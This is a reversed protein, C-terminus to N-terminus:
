QAPPPHVVGDIVAIRVDPWIIVIEPAFALSVTDLWVVPSINASYLVCPPYRSIPWNTNIAVYLRSAVNFPTPISLLGWWCGISPTQHWPWHASKRMVEFLASVPIAVPRTACVAICSHRLPRTRVKVASAVPRIHCRHLVFTTASMVLNRGLSSM